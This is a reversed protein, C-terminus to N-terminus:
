DRLWVVAPRLEASAGSKTKSLMSELRGDLTILRSDLGEREFAALLAEGPLQHLRVHTQAMLTFMSRLMQPARLVLRLLDGRSRGQGLGEFDPVMTTGALKEMILFAGGLEERSDVALMVRPAPFGLELVTNQVLAERRARTPEELRRILRLILPRQFEPPAEELTFGYILSEFGGLVQRPPKDYGLSPRNLRRRLTDLLRTALDDDRTENVAAPGGAAMCRKRRM